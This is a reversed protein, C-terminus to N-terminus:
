GGEMGGLSGWVAPPSSSAERTGETEEEEEGLRM